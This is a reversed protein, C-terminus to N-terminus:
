THTGLTVPRQALVGTNDGYEHVDSHVHLPIAFQRQILHDVFAHAPRVRMRIIHQPGRDQHIRIALALIGTIVRRGNDVILHHRAILNLYM